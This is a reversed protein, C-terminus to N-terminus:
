LLSGQHEKEYWFRHALSVEACLENPIKSREYSGEVKGNVRNQVIQILGLKQLEKKAKKIREIGWKLSMKVYKDNAKVANTKQWKATKYYFGYLAFCDAPNESQFLKDVTTKNMIFLDDAIDNLNINNM